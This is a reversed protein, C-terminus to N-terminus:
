DAPTALRVAATSGSEGTPPSPTTSVSVLTSGNQPSRDAVPLCVVVSTGEGPGSTIVLSGDVGQIRERMTTLGFHGSPAPRDPNFGCGNDEVAVCLQEAEAWIRVVVSEAKAHKRVNALAEQVVRLLQIEVNPALGPITEPEVRIEVRIGTQLGFKRVYERLGAVFGQRNTKMRLGLIAERVDAYADDVVESIGRAEAAARDVAGDALLDQLVSARLGLYGLAQALSDHLERAIRDREELVAVGKLQVHLAELERTREHVRAELQRNWHSMESQAQKQAELMDRQAAFRAARARDLQRAHEIEFVSMTRVVSYAVFVTALATVLQAPVLLTANFSAYNLLSAPFFPAPTVVLGASLVTTGFAVAAGVSHRAIAPLGSELFRKRQALLGAAALIAGPCYLLYHAWVDATTLWSGSAIAFDRSQVRHCELCATISTSTGTEVPGLHPIVLSVLWAGTLVWPLLLLWRYARTRSLLIAGFRVLSAGALVVLVLRVVRLPETGGTALSDTALFGADLWAGLAGLFGFAALYKLSVAFRTPRSRRASLTVAEGLAFLVLGYVFFVLFYALDVEPLDTSV